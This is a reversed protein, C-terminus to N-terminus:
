FLVQVNKQGKVSDKTMFFGRPSCGREGGMMRGGVWQQMLRLRMFRTLQRDAIM